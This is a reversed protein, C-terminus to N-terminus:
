RLRGILTRLTADEGPETDVVIEARAYLPAREAYLAELESRARERGGMPRLDGQAVVRDWHAGPTARLWVTRAKERLLRWSGEHTVAGGGVELVVPAGELLEELVRHELTRVHAEGHLEFLAGLDMGAEGEIRRDVEIFECGLEEALRPGLTSKGAGRLGLLAVPRRADAWSEVHALARAADEEDHEVVWRVLDGRAGEPALLAVLEVDLAAALEALSGLSPNARGGEVSSLFRASLGAREAVDKATMGRSKRLARVREGLDEPGM